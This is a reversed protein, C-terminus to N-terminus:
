EIESLRERFMENFFGANYENYFMNFDSDHFKLADEYVTMILGDVTNFEGYLGQDISNEALVVPDFYGYYSDEEYVCDM